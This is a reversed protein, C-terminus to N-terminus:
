MSAMIASGAQLSHRAPASFSVQITGSSSASQGVTSVAHRPGRALQRSAILDEDIMDAIENGVEFRGARLEFPEAKADREDIHLGIRVRAACQLRAARRVPERFHFEAKQFNEGGRM